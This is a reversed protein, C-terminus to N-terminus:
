RGWGRKSRDHPQTGSSTSPFIAPHALDPRAALPRPGDPTLIAGLALPGQWGLERGLVALYERVAQLVV